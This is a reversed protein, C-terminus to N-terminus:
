GRTAIAESGPRRVACIIGKTGSKARERRGTLARVCDPMQWIAEKPDNLDSRGFRRLFDGMTTPDSVKDVGSLQKYFADEQLRVLDEICSAGAEKKEWFTAESIKLSAAQRVKNTIRQYDVGIGIQIIQHSKLHNM